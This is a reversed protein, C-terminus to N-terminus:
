ECMVVMDVGFLMLVGIMIKVVEGCEVMKLYYSGAFVEVVVCYSDCEFDDSCLVYGDM